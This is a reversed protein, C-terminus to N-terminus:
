VRSSIRRTAPVRTRRTATQGRRERADAVRSSQADRGDGRGAAWCLAMVVLVTCAWAIILAAAVIM